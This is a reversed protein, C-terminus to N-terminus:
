RMKFLPRPWWDPLHHMILRVLHKQGQKILRELTHTHTHTSQSLLHCLYCRTYHYWTPRFVCVLVSPGLCVSSISGAMCFLCMLCMFAFHGVTFCVPSLCPSKSTHLLTVPGRPICALHCLEHYPCSLSLGCESGWRCVLFVSSMTHAPLLSDVSM